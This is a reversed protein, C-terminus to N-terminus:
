EDGQQHHEPELTPQEEPTKGDVDKMAWAHVPWTVSAAGHAGGSTRKAPRSQAALTRLRGVLM